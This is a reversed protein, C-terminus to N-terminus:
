KMLNTLKTFKKVRIQTYEVVVGIQQMESWKIVDCGYKIKFFIIKAQYLIVFNIKLTPINYFQALSFISAHYILMSQYHKEDLPM